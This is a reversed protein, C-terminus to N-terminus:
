QVADVKGAVMVSRPSAAVRASSSPGQANPSSPINALPVPVAVAAALEKKRTKVHTLNQELVAIYRQIAPLSSFASPAMLGWDEAGSQNTPMVSANQSMAERGPENQKTIVHHLKPGVLLAATFSAVWLILFDVLGLRLDGVAHILMIIPFVIGVSFLVNYISWAIAVAENFKSSTKRTSFAMLAGFGVLVAKSCIAVILFDMGKDGYECQTYEYAVVPEGSYVTSLAPSMPAVGQWVALFLTDALVALLILALLKVNTIRVVKLQRQRGFIRWIRWTKAFLPSFTLMFGLNATWNFAGCSAVSPTVTYLISSIFLLGVGSLSINLFVPAAARMVTEQRYVLVGCVAGVIAILGLVALAIVTGELGASVSYVVPQAQFLTNVTGASYHCEVAKYSAAVAQQITALNAARVIQRSQLTTDLAVDNTLWDVLHLMSLGRSCTGVTNTASDAYSRPM